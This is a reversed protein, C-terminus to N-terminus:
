SIAFPYAKTFVSGGGGGGITRSQQFPSPKADVMASGTSSNTSSRTATRIRDTLEETVAIISDSYHM